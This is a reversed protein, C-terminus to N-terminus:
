WQAVLYGLKRLQTHAHSCDGLRTLEKLSWPSNGLLNRQGHFKGLLFVPTGNGKGPSRGSGPILDTDRIDVVKAPLKKKKKVM